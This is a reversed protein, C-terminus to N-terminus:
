GLRDASEIIKANVTEIDAAATIDDIIDMGVNYKTWWVAASKLFDLVETRNSLTVKQTANINDLRITGLPFNVEDNAIYNMKIDMYIAKSNTSMSMTVGNHDFGLEILDSNHGHVQAIAMAKLVTFRPQTEDVAKKEADTMVSPIGDVVKRHEAITAAVSASVPRVWSPDFPTSKDFLEWLLTTQNQILVEM